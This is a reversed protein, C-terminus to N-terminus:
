DVLQLAAGAVFGSRGDPLEVEYLSGQRSLIRVTTGEPLGGPIKNKPDTANVATNDTLIVGHVDRLMAYAASFALLLSFLWLMFIMGPIQPRIYVNGKNLRRYLLLGILGIFLLLSLVSWLGILGPATAAHWWRLFFIDKAPPIFGPIRSQTLLLNERAEKYDPKRKLAREYNLVAPGIRNLRYYTNGLNYFVAPDAPRTAAIQEFYYAASDYQKQQYFANARQWATAPSVAKAGTTAFFALILLLLRNGSASRAGKASSHAPSLFALAPILNM